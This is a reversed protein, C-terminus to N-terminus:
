GAKRAAMYETAPTPLFATNTACANTSRAVHMRITQMAARSAVPALSGIRSLHIQLECIQGLFTCVLMWKSTINPNRDLAGGGHPESRPGGQEGKRSLQPRPATAPVLTRHAKRNGKLEAM